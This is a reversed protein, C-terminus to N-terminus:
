RAAERQLAELASAAKARAEAVLKEAAAVDALARAYATGLADLGAPAPAPPNKPTEAASERKAPLAKTSLDSPRPHARLTPLIDLLRDYYSSHPRNGNDMQWSRVTWATTGISRAVELVTLGAAERAERIAQALTKPTDKVSDPSAPGGAARDECEPRTAGKLEPLVELLRQYTGLVPANVDTEWNGVTGPSVRLKNALQAQSLGAKKRVIALCTGFVPPLAPTPPPAARAYEKIRPFAALLRMLAASEPFAEGAEWREVDERRVDLQVALEQRSKGAEERLHKLTSAFTSPVEAVATMKGEREFSVGHDRIARRVEAIAGTSAENQTGGHPVSVKHGDPFKFTAHDGRGDVRVGGAQEIDSILDRSKM